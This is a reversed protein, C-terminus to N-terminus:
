SGHRGGRQKSTHEIMEEIKEKRSYEHRLDIEARFDGASARDTLKAILLESDALCRWLAQELEKGILEDLGLSRM